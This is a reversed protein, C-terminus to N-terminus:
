LKTTKIYIDGRKTIALGLGAAKCSGKLMNKGKVLLITLCSFFYKYAVIHSNYIQVLNIITCRNPHSTAYSLGTCPTVNHVPYRKVNSFARCCLKKYNFEPLKITASKTSRCYTASSVQKTASIEVPNVIKHSFERYM